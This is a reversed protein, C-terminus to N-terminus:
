QERSISSEQTKIYRHQWGSTENFRVEFDPENFFKFFDDHVRPYFWHIIFAWSFTQLSLLHALFGLPRKRIHKLRLFTDCFYLTGQSIRFSGRFLSYQEELVRAIRRVPKKKKIEYEKIKFRYFRFSGIQAARAYLDTEELYNLDKYGGLTNILERPAIMIVESTALMYGEFNDHYIQLLKNLFPKFVDDMDMQGIIYKGRSNEFAIQRGLGRSCKTVILRIQKRDYERLIELSGDKSCNDVVVIEFRDDVQTLISELSQRVSDVTNFNTICISYLPQM